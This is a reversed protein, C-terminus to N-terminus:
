RNLQALRALIPSDAAMMGLVFPQRLHANAPTEFVVRQFLEDLSRRHHEELVDRVPQLREAVLLLEIGLPAGARVWDNLALITPQLNLPLRLHPELRHHASLLKLARGM